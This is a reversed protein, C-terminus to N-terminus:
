VAVLTFPDNFYMQDKLSLFDKLTIVWCDKYIMYQQIDVLCENLIVIEEVNNYKVIICLKKGSNVCDQKAQGIWDDWDKIDQKIVTNFSPPSKYHKCEVSYVFNNPCVLDGFSAKELNHTQVRQQNKGGFFSGSDINRRFSQEIGTKEKFRESLLNAIKREFSNGKQKSNM